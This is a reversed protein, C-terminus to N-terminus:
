RPYQNGNSPLNLVEISNVRLSNALTRAFHNVVENAPVQFSLVEIVNVGELRFSPPLRVSVLIREAQHLYIRRSRCHWITLIRIERTLIFDYLNVFQSFM